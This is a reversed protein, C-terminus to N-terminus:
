NKNKYSPSLHYLITVDSILDMYLADEGEAGSPFTFNLQIHDGSLIPTSSLTLPSHVQQYDESVGEILIVDGTKLKLIEEM